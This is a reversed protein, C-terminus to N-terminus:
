KIAKLLDAVGKKWDGILDAYKTGALIAPPTKGSLSVPLVKVAEGNLQRALASMWEINMWPALGSSSYCVVLYATGELGHNMREAIHDGIGIEWLDLWVQHGAARIESALQEALAADAGRHSIFVNAM